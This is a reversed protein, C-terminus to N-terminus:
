FYGILRSPRGDLPHQWQNRLWDTTVNSYNDVAALAIKSLEKTQRIGPASTNSGHAISNRTGLLTNLGSFKDEKYDKSSNIGLLRCNIDVVKENVNSFTLVLESLDSHHPLKNSNWEDLWKLISVTNNTLGKSLRRGFNKQKQRESEEFSMDIISRLTDVFKSFEKEKLLWVARTEAPARSASSNAAHIAKLCTTTADKFFKEWAAYYIPIAALRVSPNRARFVSRNLQNILERSEDKSFEIEDILDQRNM